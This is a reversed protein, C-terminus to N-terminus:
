APQLSVAEALCTPIDSLSVVRDICGTDFAAKPMGYVISTAQDQAFTRAGAEKLRKVGAAGDFGMGTMVLAVAHSGAAAAVSEFLVDVSPRFGSVKPGMEVSLHLRDGRRMLRLHRDGAAIYVHNARVEALNRAEVVTLRCTENLRTAFPGTFDPPMHQAILIPPFSAPFAPMMRHLTAPGGASIGIAIVAAPDFAGVPHAATVRAPAAALTRRNAAHAAKVAEVVAARFSQLTSSKDGLPKAVCEVAGLELAKLTTATGKQTRTSVMVVPLPCEKMVTALVDLGDMGPMEVDLTIVDPRLERIKKLADLGNQATGLVDIGDEGALGSKLASRMFVSDDIVLVRIGGTASM